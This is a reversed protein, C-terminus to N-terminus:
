YLVIVVAGPAGTIDADVVAFSSVISGFGGSADEVPVTGGEILKLQVVGRAKLYVARGPAVPTGPTLTVAKTYPGGYVQGTRSVPIVATPSNANPGFVPDYSFPM